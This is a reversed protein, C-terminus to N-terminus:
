EGCVHNMCPERLEPVKRRRRTTMPSEIVDNRTVHDRSWTVVEPEPVDLEDVTSLRTSRRKPRRRGIVDYTPGSTPCGSTAHGVADLSRGVGSDACTVVDDCSRLRKRDGSTSEINSSLKSDTRRRSLQAASQSSSSSPRCSLGAACLLHTQLGCRLRSLLRSHKQRTPAGQDAMSSTM